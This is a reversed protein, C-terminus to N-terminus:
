RLHSPEPPGLPSSAAPAGQTVARPQQHESTQETWTSTETADPSHLGGNDGVAVFQSGTWIIDQLNLYIPVTLLPGNGGPIRLGRQVVGDWTM